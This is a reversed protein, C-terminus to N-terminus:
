RSPRSRESGAAAGADAERLRALLGGERRTPRACAAVFTTAPGVLTVADTARTVATYVLERTTVRNPRDPLVLMVSAFESGQSKHVTIAFATDHEPLRLPAIARYGRTGDPFLVTLADDGAPLCLGVDGNFLRLLGDNRRVIVPRGPYWPSASGADLPHALRRRLDAGIRANLAEVGRRGQRVACLVRFRDFAAFVAAPDDGPRLAALAARYGDYGALLAASATDGLAPGDDDLWQVADSDGAAVWALAERGRGANVDAALRGIGSDARFRHSDTLWIVADHLPTRAVPAPPRIREPAVGTTAALDAVCAPSLTPDSSLEAFVAGAEVAALQDKDGLLILRAQPPLADVLRDALALDLMSAEDVVLVDLPLPHAADHV